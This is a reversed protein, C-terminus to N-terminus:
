ILGILSTVLDNLSHGTLVVYAIAMVVVVVIFGVLCEPNHVVMTLVVLAALIVIIAM